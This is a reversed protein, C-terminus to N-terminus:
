MLDCEMNLYYKICFLTERHLSVLVKLDSIKPLIQKVKLFWVRFLYYIAIKKCM